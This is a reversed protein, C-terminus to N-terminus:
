AVGSAVGAVERLKQGGRIAMRCPCKARGNRVVVERTCPWKACGSRVVIIRLRNSTASDEAVSEVVWNEQNLKFFDESKFVKSSM